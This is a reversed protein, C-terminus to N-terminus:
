PQNNVMLSPRSHNRAPVRSNGAGQVARFIALLQPNIPKSFAKGADEVYVKLIAAERGEFGPKKL